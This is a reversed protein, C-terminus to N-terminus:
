PLPVVSAIEPVTIWGAHAQGTLSASRATEVLEDVEANAGDRRGGRSPRRLRRLRQDAFLAGPIVDRTTGKKFGRWQLGQVPQLTLDM